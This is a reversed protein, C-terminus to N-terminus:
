KEVVEIKIKFGEKELCSAVSQIVKWFSCECYLEGTRKDLIRM